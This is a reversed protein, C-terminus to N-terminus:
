NASVSYDLPNAKLLHGPVAKGDSGVVLGGITLAYEQGFSLLLPTFVLVVMWVVYELKATSLRHKLRQCAVM